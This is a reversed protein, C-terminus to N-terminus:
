SREGVVIEDGPNIGLDDVTRGDALAKAVVKNGYLEKDGRMITTQSLDTAQTPGALTVVDSLLADSPVM